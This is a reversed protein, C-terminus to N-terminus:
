KQCLKNVKRIVEHVFEKKKLLKAQYKNILTALTPLLDENPNSMSLELCTNVIYTSVSMNSEKANQTIQKKEDTTCRISISETKLNQQHM